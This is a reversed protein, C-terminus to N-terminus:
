VLTIEPLAAQISADWYPLRDGYVAGATYCAIDDSTELLDIMRLTMGWIVGGNVGIPMGLPLPVSANAALTITPQTAVANVGNAAAITGVSVNSQLTSVGGTITFTGSAATEAVAIAHNAGNRSLLYLTTGDQLITILHGLAAEFTTKAATALADLTGLHATLATHISAQGAITLTATETNAWTGGFTVSAYPATVVIPNSNAFFASNFVDIETENTAVPEFTTTRALPAGLGSPLRQIITGAPLFKQGNANLQVKTTDLTLMRPSRLGEATAAIGIDLNSYDKIGLYLNQPM